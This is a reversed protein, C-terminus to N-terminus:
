DAASRKNAIFASRALREYSAAVDLMAAKADPDDMLEPIIRAEEARKSWHDPTRLSPALELMKKATGM